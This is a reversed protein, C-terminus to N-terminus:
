QTMNLVQQMIQDTTTIMKANAQYARQYTIIQTLESALDM